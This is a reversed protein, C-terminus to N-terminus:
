DSPFEDLLKPHEFRYEVKSGVIKLHALATKLEEEVAKRMTIDRLVLIYASQNTFKTLRGEAYFIHGNARQGLFANKALLQTSLSSSADLASIITNFRGYKDKPVLAKINSEKLQKVDAGFIDAAAPNAYIIEQSRGFILVADDISELVEQLLYEYNGELARPFAKM